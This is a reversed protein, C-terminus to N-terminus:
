TQCATYLELELQLTHPHCLVLQNVNAFHQGWIYSREMRELLVTNVRILAANPVFFLLRRM